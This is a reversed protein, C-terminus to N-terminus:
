KQGLHEGEEWETEVEEPEFDESVPTLERFEYSHDRLFEINRLHDAWQVAEGRIDEVTGWTGECMEAVRELMATNERTARLLQTLLQEVRTPAKANSKTAPEAGRYESGSEESEEKGKKKKKRVTSEEGEVECRAKRKQCAECSRTKGTASWTCNEGREACAKCQM